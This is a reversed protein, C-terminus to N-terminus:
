CGQFPLQNSDSKAVTYPPVESVFIIHFSCTYNYTYICRAISENVLVNIASDRHLDTRFICLNQLPHAVSDYQQDSRREPLWGKEAQVFDRVIDSQMASWQLHCQSCVPLAVTDFM